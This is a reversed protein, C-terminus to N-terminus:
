TRTLIMSITGAVGSDSRRLVISTTTTRSATDNNRVVTAVASSLASSLQSGGGGVATRLQVTSGVVPTTVQVLCDVLRTQFPVVALITIDDAAGGPGAVFAQTIETLVGFGSLENGIGNAPVLRDCLQFVNPNVGDDVSQVYVSDSSGPLSYTGAGPTRFRNGPSSGTDDNPLQLEGGTGGKIVTFFAGRNGQSGQVQFGTIVVVGNPNPDIEVVKVGDPIPFNHYTGPALQMFLVDGYRVIAGVQAGTVPAAPGTELATLPQGLLEGPAVITDSLLLEPGTPSKRIEITSM